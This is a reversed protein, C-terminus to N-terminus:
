NLDNVVKGIDANVCISQDTIEDPCYSEGLNVCIYSANNNQATLQWFPYKIICNYM